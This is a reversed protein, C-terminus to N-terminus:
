PGGVKPNRKFLAAKEAEPVVRTNLSECLELIEEDSLSEDAWIKKVFEYLKRGDETDLTFRHQEEFIFVTKFKQWTQWGAIDSTVNSKPKAGHEALKSM